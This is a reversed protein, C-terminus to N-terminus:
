GRRRQKLQRAAVDFTHRLALYLDEEDDGRDADHEVVVPPGGTSVVLSIRYSYRTHAGPHQLDIVVRCRLIRDAFRQLKGALKHIYDRTAAAGTHHRFAIELPFAFEEGDRTEVEAPEDAPPRSLVDAVPLLRHVREVLEETDFPKPLLAAAGLRRALEETEQDCFASILIMPPGASRGQVSELVELGTLGPMRIDSIVLDFEVNSSRSDSRDIWKKLTTGDHCEQVLYGERELAWALLKRMELDDEALLIRLPLHAHAAGHRHSSGTMTGHSTHQM